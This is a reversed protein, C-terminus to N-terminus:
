VRNLIYLVGAIFILVGFWALIIKSWIGIEYKAQEKKQWRKFNANEIENAEEIKKNDTPIM